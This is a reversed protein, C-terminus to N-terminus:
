ISDSLYKNKIFSGLFNILPKDNWNYLKCYLGDNFANALARKKSKPVIINDTTLLFESRCSYRKRLDMLLKLSLLRDDKNHKLKLFSEYNITSPNWINNNELEENDPNLFVHIIFIIPISSSKDFLLKKVAENIESLSNNKKSITISSIKEIQSIECVLPDKAIDYNVKEPLIYVLQYNM